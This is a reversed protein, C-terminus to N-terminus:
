RLLGAIHPRVGPKLALKDLVLLASRLRRWATGPLAMLRGNPALSAAPARLSTVRILKAGTGRLLLFFFLSAPFSTARAPPMVPTIRSCVCAVRLIGRGVAVPHRRGQSSFLFRPLPGHRSSDIARTSPLSAPTKGSVSLKSSFPRVFSAARTPM